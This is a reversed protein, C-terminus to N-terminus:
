YKEGGNFKLLSYKNRIIDAFGKDTIALAARASKGICYGLRNKNGIFIINVKYHRCFSEYNDKTNKSSDESVIVLNVKRSRTARKIQAEGSVVKGAKHALGILSYM